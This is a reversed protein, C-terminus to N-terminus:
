LNMLIQRDAKWWLYGAAPIEQASAAVRERVSGLLADYAAEEFEFTM